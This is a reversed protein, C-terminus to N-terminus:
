GGNYKSEILLDIYHKAKKLDELGNKDEHRCIYKIINGECFGLNNKTIFEIPQIAHKKYHDGGEQRDSAKEPVEPMDGEGEERNRERIREMEAELADREEEYERLASLYAKKSLLREGYCTVKNIMAKKFLSKINAYICAWGGSYEERYKHLWYSTVLGHHVESILGILEGNDKVKVKFDSGMHKNFRDVYVALKTIMPVFSGPKDKKEKKKTERFGWRTDNKPDYLVSFGDYYEREVRGLGLEMSLFVIEYKSALLRFCGNRFNYLSTTCRYCRDEIYGDPLPLDTYKIWVGELRDM